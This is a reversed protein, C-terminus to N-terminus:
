LQVDSYRWKRKSKTSMHIKKRLKLYKRLGAKTLHCGNIKLLAGYKWVNYQKRKLGILKYKNFFQIINKLHEKKQVNICAMDCKHSNKAKYIRIIYMPLRLCRCVQHLLNINQSDMDLNFLPRAQWWIRSNKIKTKTLALSFCGEGDTLGTVYYPSISKM